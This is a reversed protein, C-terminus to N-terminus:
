STDVPLARTSISTVFSGFVVARGTDRQADQTQAEELATLLHLTRIRLEARHRWM